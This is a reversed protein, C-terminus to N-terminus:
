FSLIQRRPGELKRNERLRPRGCRRSRAILTPTTTDSLPCRAFSFPVQHLHLPSKCLLTMVSTRSFATPPRM